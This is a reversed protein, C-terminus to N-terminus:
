DEPPGLLENVSISFGPVQPSELIEGRGLVLPQGYRSGELRHIRVEESELDVFWYEPVGFRAYLGKKRQLDVKRTSPSSVEVVVDPASRVFREEIKSLNEPRVFLVDPVVVNLESFYVDLPAPYIKGGNEKAYGVLRFVLEVVVDQHRSSPSPTVLMEGDILERRVHDEEPYMALLDTYTFVAEPRTAM